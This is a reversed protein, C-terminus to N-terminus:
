RKKTFVYNTILIGLWAILASLSLYNFFRQKPSQVIQWSINNRGEKLYVTELRLRGRSNLIAEGPLEKDNVKIQYAGPFYALNLNINATKENPWDFEVLGYTNGRKPKNPFSQGNIVLFTENVDCADSFEPNIIDDGVTTSSYRLPHHDFDQYLAPDDVSVVKWHNRNGYIALFVIVFVLLLKVSNSKLKNISFGIMAAITFSTVGLFRWPFQVRQMPTIIQWILVSRGLMLFLYVGTFFYWFIIIGLGRTDKKVLWYGLSLTTFALVLWQAYGVMFSMGDDKTGPMSYWRGWPSRILQRLTPFHQYYPFVNATALKTHKQELIMPGWFFSSILLVSVGIIILLIRAQANKYIKEQYIKFILWALLVPAVILVVLNHSTILLGGLVSVFFSQLWIKKNRLPAKKLSLSSFLCSVQYLLVPLITYALFEPSGRVYVLLFRYPVFLYLLAGIFGAFRNETEKLLWLFFFIPGIIFTAFFIIEWSLLVNNTILNIAAVLYYVLPYFFNFIPTGCLGNLRGAWRLPFHGESLAELADFSRALHSDGDHTVFFPKTFSALGVCEGLLFIVLIFFITIARDKRLRMNVSLSRTDRKRM